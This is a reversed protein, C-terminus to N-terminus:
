IFRAVKLNTLTEVKEPQPKIGDRTLLHGLYHLELYSIAFNLGTHVKNMLNQFYAPAQALGLPVKLYEYKGFPLCFGTKTISDKDLAIHHNGARLDLTTFYMAKGLKAFIDEARPM